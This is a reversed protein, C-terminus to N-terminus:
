SRRCRSRGPPVPVASRPWGGPSRRPARVIAALVGGVTRGYRWDLPGTLPEGTTPRDRREGALGTARGRFRRLHIATQNSASM